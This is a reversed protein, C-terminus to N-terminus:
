NLKFEFEFSLEDPEPLPAGFSRGPLATMIKELSRRLIPHGKGGLVAAESIKGDRGIKVLLRFQGEYGARQAAVPYYKEKEIQEQVWLRLRDPDVPPTQPASAEQTVHAEAKVPEPEPTEVIEELAEEAEEPPSPEPEPPTEVVARLEMQAFHLQVPAPFVAVPEAPRHRM